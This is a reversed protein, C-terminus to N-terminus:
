SDVARTRLDGDLRGSSRAAFVPALSVVIRGFARRSVSVPPPVVQPDANQRMSPSSARLAAGCARRTRPDALRPWCAVTDSSRRPQCASGKGEASGHNSSRAWRTRSSRRRRLTLCHVGPLWVAVTPMPHDAWASASSIAPRAGDSPAFSAASPCFRVELLVALFVHCRPQMGVSSGPPEDRHVDDMRALQRRRPEGSEPFSAETDALMFSSM